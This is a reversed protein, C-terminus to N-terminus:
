RGIQVEAWIHGNEYIRIQLFRYTNLPDSLAGWIEDFEEDPYFIEIDGSARINASRHSLDPRFFLYAKQRSQDDRLPSIAFITRQYNVAGSNAGTTSAASMLFHDIEFYEVAPRGNRVQVGDYQAEAMDRFVTQWDNSSAHPSDADNDRSDVAAQAGWALFAALVFALTTVKM